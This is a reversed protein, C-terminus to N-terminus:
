FSTYEGCQSTHCRQSAIAADLHVYEASGAEFHAADKNKQTAQAKGGSVRQIFPKCQSKKSHADFVQFCCCFLQTASKSQPLVQTDWGQWNHQPAWGGQATSGAVKLSRPSRLDERVSRRVKSKPGEEGRGADVPGRLNSGVSVEHPKTSLQWSQRSRVGSEVQSEAHSM